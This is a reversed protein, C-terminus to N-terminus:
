MQDTFCGTVQMRLVVIYISAPLHLSSGLLWACFPLITTICVFHVAGDFPPGLFGMPSQGPPHPNGLGMHQTPLFGTWTGGIALSIFVPSVQGVQPSCIRKCQTLEPELHDVADLGTSLQCWLRSGTACSFLTNTQVIQGFIM